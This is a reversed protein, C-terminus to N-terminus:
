GDRWKAQKLASQWYFGFKIQSNLATIQCQWKSFFLIFGSFTQCFFALTLNPGGPELACM